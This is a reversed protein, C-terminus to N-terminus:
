DSLRGTALARAWDARGARQALAVMRAPDYAVSRFRVQWGAPGQEVLAYCAEPTGSEMVHPVPTDDHYAPLGVSGPNVILSDGLRVARAVHTHGCLILTEPCDGRLAAVEALPRPSVQGEPGVKELWYTLDDGPTAHCLRVGGRAWGAPLARLWDLDAPTLQAHAARDSPGMAEPLQEVLWRDHNGRICRMPHTRLLAMTEAAALPGSLHDGLNVIEAVDQAAIDKLVASLADANGHVDAIVALRRPM